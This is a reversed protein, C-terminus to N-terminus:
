RGQEVFGVVAGHSIASYDVRAASMELFATCEKVSMKLAHRSAAM